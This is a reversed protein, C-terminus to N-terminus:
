EKELRNIEETIKITWETLLAFNHSNLRKRKNNAFERIARDSIGNGIYKAISVASFGYEKTLKKLDQRLTICRIEEIDSFKM